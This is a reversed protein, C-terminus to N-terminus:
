GNVHDETYSAGGSKPLKSDNTHETNLGHGEADYEFLGLLTTPLHQHVFDFM